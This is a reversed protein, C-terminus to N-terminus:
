MGPPTDALAEGAEQDDATMAHQLSNQRGELSALQQRVRDLETRVDIMQTDSTDYLYSVGNPEYAPWHIEEGNGTMVTLKPAVNKIQQIKDHYLGYFVALRILEGRREPIVGKDGSPTQFSEVKKYASRPDGLYKILVHFPVMKTERPKITYTRRLGDLVADIKGTNTANMQEDPDSLNVDTFMPATTTM